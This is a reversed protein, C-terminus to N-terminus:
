ALHAVLTESLAALTLKDPRLARYLPNKAARTVHEKRGIIIGSQPGGLLKDGSAAGVHTGPGLVVETGIVAYPGIEVGEALEASADIIASPHISKDM